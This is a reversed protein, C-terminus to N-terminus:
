TGEKVAVPDEQESPLDIEGILIPTMAKRLFPAVVDYDDPHLWLEIRADETGGTAFFIRVIPCNEWNLGALDIYAVQALNIIRNGVRVFNTDM